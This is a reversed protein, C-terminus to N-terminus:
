CGIIRVGPEETADIAKRLHPLAREVIIERLKFWPFPSWRM